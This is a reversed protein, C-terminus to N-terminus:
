ERKEIKELFNGVQAQGNNDYCKDEDRSKHIKTFEISPDPDAKGAALALLAALVVLFMVMTRRRRMIVTVASVCM